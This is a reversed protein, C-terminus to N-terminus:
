LLNRIHKLYACIVNRTEGEHFQKVWKVDPFLINFFEVFPGSDSSWMEILLVAIGRPEYKLCNREDDYIMKILNSVQKKYLGSKYNMVYDPIEVALLKNTLISATIVRIIMHDHEAYELVKRWDINLKCMNVIDIYLRIDPSRAYSHISIHLLCLYLLAEKPPYSIETSDFKELTQATVCYQLDMHFPLKLRSMPTWMVNLGFGKEFLGEHFFETKVIESQKGQNKSVFGHKAMVHYIVDRNCRDAYLDVDGSSFLSLDTGSSLLAGFNEYVFVEYVHETHLGMFIQSLIDVIEHNRKQYVDIQRKWYEGDIDLKSFLNAIFPVIKCRKAFDLIEMRGVSEYHFELKAKEEDSCKKQSIALQTMLNNEGIVRKNEGDLYIWRWLLETLYREM